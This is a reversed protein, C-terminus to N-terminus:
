DPQGLWLANGEGNEADIGLSALSFGRPELFERLENMTAGGVYSSDRTAVELFAADTSDLLASAGHLVKLEAGQVDIWLCDIRRARRLEDLEDLRVTEVEFSGALLLRPDEARPALLSSTGPRAVEHFTAVGSQDSAAVQLCQVRPNGAFRRSLVTYDSPNPELCLFRCRPYRDIMARVEDGHWAGVIVILEVDGPDCRLYQHLNEQLDLQVFAYPKPM